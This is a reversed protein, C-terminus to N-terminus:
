IVFLFLLTVGVMEADVGVVVVVSRLPENNEKDDDVTRSGFSARRPFDADDEGEGVVLRDLVKIARKRNDKPDFFLVSSSSSSSVSSLLTTPPSVGTKVLDFDNRVVDDESLLLLLVDVCSRKAARM